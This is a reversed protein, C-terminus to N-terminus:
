LIQHQRHLKIIAKTGVTPARNVPIEVVAAPDV